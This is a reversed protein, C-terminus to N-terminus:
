KLWYTNLGVNFDYFGSDTSTFSIETIDIIRLNNELDTLFSLFNSYSANVSFKMPLVGYLSSGQGGISDSGKKMEGISVNKIILNRGAAINGIEIILRINDINSPLLKELRATDAEPIKNKKAVLMNRKAVISTSGKAIDQFKTLEDKLSLVSYTSYDAVNSPTGTGKYNPNVYGFFITLSSLILIIPLILNM